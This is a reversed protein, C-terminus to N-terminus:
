EAKDKLKVIDKASCLVTPISYSELQGSTSNFEGILYLTFDEPHKAFICESDGLVLDEFSRMAQGSTLFFTPTMFEELKEDYVSFIKM